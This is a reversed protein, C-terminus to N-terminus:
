KSEASALQERTARYSSRGLPKKTDGSRLWEKFEAMNIEAVSKIREGGRGDSFAKQYATLADRKSPFGLMCKHEDFKGSEADMQDIVYVRANDHEPGVYCDVHDGDKGETKKIYGYTAPMRVSWKKGGKDKGSRISGKPNEITINLGQLTVHGKAYNGAEKQAESPNRNVDREAAQVAGGDRRMPLKDSRQTPVLPAYPKLRESHYGVAETDGWGPDYGGSQSWDIRRNIDPDGTLIGNNPDYHVGTTRKNFGETFTNDGLARGMPVAREGGELGHSMGEDSFGLPPNPDGLKANPLIPQTLNKSRFQVNKSERGDGVKGGKYRGSEKEWYMCWGTPAIAGEVFTCKGPSRYMSCGACKERGNPKNRYHARAKTTKKAEGVEGGDALGAPQPEAPAIPAIPAPPGLTPQQEAMTGGPGQSPSGSSSNTPWMPGAPTVGGEAFRWRDQNEWWTSGGFGDAPQEPKGLGSFWSQKRVAGDDDGQGPEGPLPVNPPGGKPAAAAYTRFPLQADMEEDTAQRGPPAPPPLELSNNVPPRTSKDIQNPDLGHAGQSRRWAPDRSMKETLVASDTGLDDGQWPPTQPPKPAHAQADLDQAPPVRPTPTPVSATELPPKAEFSQAAPYGGNQPHGVGAQGQVNGYQPYPSAAEPAPSGAGAQGPAAATRPQSGSGQGRAQAAQFIGNALGYRLDFRHAGAPNAWSWGQPRHYSTANTTADLLNRSRAIGAFARREQGFMLEQHAFELQTQLPVMRIMSQVNRPDRLDLNPIRLGQSRAYQFLAPLRDNWQGIGASHPSMPSRLPNDGFGHKGSYVRYPDGGSEHTMNGALGAAQEPTAGKSIWYDYIQLGFAIRPDTAM